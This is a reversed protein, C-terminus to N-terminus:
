QTSKIETNQNCFSLECYVAGILLKSAEKQSLTWNNIPMMFGPQQSPQRSETTKGPADLFAM